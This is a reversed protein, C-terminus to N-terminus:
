LGRAEVSEAGSREVRQRHSLQPERDDAGPVGDAAGLHARLDGLLEEWTALPPQHARAHRNWAKETDYDRQNIRGVSCIDVQIDGRVGTGTIYSVRFGRLIISPTSM